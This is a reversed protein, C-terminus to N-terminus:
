QTIDIATNLSLLAKDDVYSEYKRFFFLESMIDPTKYKDLKVINKKTM